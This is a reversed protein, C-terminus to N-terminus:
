PSQYCYNGYTITKDACAHDVYGWESTTGDCYYTKEGVIEYTPACPSIRCSCDYEASYAPVGDGYTWAWYHATRERFLADSSSAFFTLALMSLVFVPRVVRLKSM